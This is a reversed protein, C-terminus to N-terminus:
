WDCWWAWPSPWLWGTIRVDVSADSLEVADEVAQEMVGESDM